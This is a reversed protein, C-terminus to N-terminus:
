EIPPNTFPFSRYLHMFVEDFGLLVKGGVTLLLKLGNVSDDCIVGYEEARIFYDNGVIPRSRGFEWTFHACVPHRGLGRMEIRSFVFPENSGLIGGPQCARTLSRGQTKFVYYLEALCSNRPLLQKCRIYEDDNQYAVTTTTLVLLLFTQMRLLKMTPLLLPLPFRNGIPWPFVSSYRESTVSLHYTAPVRKKYM